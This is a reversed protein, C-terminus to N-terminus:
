DHYVWTTQLGFTTKELDLSVVNNIITMRVLVGLVVSPDHGVLRDLIQHIQGHKMDRLAMVLATRCSAHDQGRIAAAFGIAKHWRLAVKVIPKLDSDDFRRYTAHENTAANLQAVLQSEHSPTRKSKGAKVEHWEIGGDYRNATADLETARTEEKDHSLIPEPALNFDRIDPNAELFYLWHVFQRDSPLVWDTDTKVSYVLWLNHNLHGRGRYVEHLSKRLSSKLSRKPTAM